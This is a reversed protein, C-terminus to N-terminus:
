PLPAAPPRALLVDEDDQAPSGGGVGIAGIVQDDEVVPRGGGLLSFGAATFSAIRAPDTVGTALDATAARFARATRAKAPVLAVSAGTRALRPQLVRVAVLM